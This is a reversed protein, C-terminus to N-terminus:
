LYIYTHIHRDMIEKMSQALSKQLHKPDGGLLETYGWEFGATAYMSFNIREMVGIRKLRKNKPWSNTPIKFLTECVDEFGRSIFQQKWITPAYGDTAMADAIHFFLEWVKKFSSDAPCSSDDCGVLPMTAALELFGGPKLHAYAQSILAPWDRIAFLLERGHIFDFSDKAQLWDTEVDFIEFQCNPPIWNPQIAAIDFGLVEAPPFRDAMDIAWMGSGTGLDLIRQPELVIPALHLQGDYM